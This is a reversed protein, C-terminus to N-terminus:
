VNNKLLINQIMYMIGINLTDPNIIISSLGCKDFIIFYKYECCKYDNTYIVGDTNVNKININNIPLPENSYKLIEALRDKKIKFLDVLMKEFMTIIDAKPADVYQDYFRMMGLKSELENLAEANDNIDERVIIKDFILRNNSKNALIAWNFNECYIYQSYTSIKGDTIKFEYRDILRVNSNTMRLSKYGIKFTSLIQELRNTPPKIGIIKTNGSTNKIPLLISIRNYIRFNINDKILQIKFLHGFRVIKYEVEGLKFIEDLKVTLTNINKVQELPEITFLPYGKSKDIHIKFKTKM